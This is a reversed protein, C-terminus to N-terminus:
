LWITLLERLSCCSFRLPRLAPRDPDPDKM